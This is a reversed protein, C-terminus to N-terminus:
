ILLVFLIKHHLLNYVKFILGDQQLEGTQPDPIILCSLFKVSNGWCIAEQCTIVLAEPTIGHVM